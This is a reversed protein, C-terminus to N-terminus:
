KGNQMFLDPNKIWIGEVLNENIKELNESIKINNRSLNELEKVIDSLRKDEDPILDHYISLDLIQEINEKSM